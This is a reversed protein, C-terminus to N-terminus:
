VDNPILVEIDFDQGSKGARDYISDSFCYFYGLYGVGALCDKKAYDGTYGIYPNGTDGLTMVVHSIIILFVAIIKLMEIGSSRPKKTM